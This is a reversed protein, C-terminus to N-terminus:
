LIVTAARKAQVICPGVPQGERSFQFMPQVAAPVCAEFEITQGQGVSGIWCSPVHGLHACPLSRWVKSDLVSRLARSLGAADFPKQVFTWSADAVPFDSGRETYGAMLLLKLRPRLM